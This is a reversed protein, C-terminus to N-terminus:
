ERKSEERRERILEEVLSRRGAGAARVKEQFCRLAQSRSRVRIGNKEYELVVEDGPKVRLAKRMAAPIVIRGGAGVKTRVM